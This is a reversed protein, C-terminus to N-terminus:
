VPYGMARLRAKQQETLNGQNMTLSNQYPNSLPQQQGQPAPAGQPMARPQQPALAKMGMQLALQKGKASGVGSMLKGAYQGYLSQAPSLGQAGSAAQMTQGLGYPGFPGTQAALMDAQQSGVGPVMSRYATNAIGTGLSDKASSLSSLIGANGAAEPSGAALIGATGVNEGAAIPALNQAIQEATLAGYAGEGAAGGAAGAADAAGAAEGGAALSGLYGGVAYEAAKTIARGPNRVNHRAEDEAGQWGVKNFFDALNRSDQAAVQEFPKKWGGGSM